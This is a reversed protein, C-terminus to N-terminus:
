IGVLEQNRNVESHSRRGLEMLSKCVQSRRKPVRKLVEKRRLPHSFKPSIIEEMGTIFKEERKPSHFVEVKQLDQTGESPGLVPAHSTLLKLLPFV